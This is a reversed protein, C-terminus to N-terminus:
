FPLLRVTLEYCLYLRDYKDLTQVLASPFRRLWEDVLAPVEGEQKPLDASTLLMGLHAFDQERLMPKMRKLIKVMSLKPHNTMFYQKLMAWKLLEQASSKLVKTINKAEETNGGSLMREQSAAVKAHFAGETHDLLYQGATEMTVDPYYKCLSKYVASLAEHETHLTSRGNIVNLYEEQDRAIFSAGISEDYTWFTDYPQLGYRSMKKYFDIAENIPEAQKVTIGYSNYYNLIEGAAPINDANRAIFCLVGFIDPVADKIIGTLEYAIDEANYGTGYVIDCSLLDILLTLKEKGGYRVVKQLIDSIKDADFTDRVLMLDVLEKLKNYTM